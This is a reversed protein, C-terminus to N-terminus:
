GEYGDEWLAVALMDCINNGDGDSAIHNTLLLLGARNAIGFSCCLPLFHRCGIKAPSYWRNAFIVKLLENIPFQINTAFWEVTTALSSM